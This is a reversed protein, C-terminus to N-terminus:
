MVQENRAAHLASCYLAAAAQTALLGFLQHDAQEVATKQALLRFIVIAGRVLGDVLLPICATLADEDDGSRVWIEASSLCSAVRDRTSRALEDYTGAPIGFSASLRLRGAEDLEVIALEESGVLNIIIEEIGSLVDARSLTAHLRHSAVYLTTLESNQQEVELYQALRQREAQELEAIRMNLARKETQHADFQEVLTNQLRMQETELQRAMARLVRVQRLLDITRRTTDDAESAQWRLDQITQESM